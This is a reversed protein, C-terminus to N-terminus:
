TDQDCEKTAYYEEILKRAMVILTEDGGELYDLLETKESVFLEKFSETSDDMDRLNDVIDALKISKSANCVQALRYCEKEKRLKRIDKMDEKKTLDDVMEVVGPPFFTSLVELTIDTDEVVDHLWAASIMAKTGGAQAVIGAVRRPHAIYPTIGDNRMQGVAAHAVTAVCRAMDIMNIM